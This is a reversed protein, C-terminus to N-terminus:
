SRLAGGSATFRGGGLFGTANEIQANNATFIVRGKIRDFSIRDTGIFTAVSGNEVDATGVLRANLKPGTYNVSVNAFGGFFADTDKFVLNALALNVRGTISLNEVADDAIAKTGAITM